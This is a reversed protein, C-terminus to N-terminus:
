VPPPQPIGERTSDPLSKQFGQRIPAVSERLPVPGELVQHSFPHIMTGIILTEYIMVGAIREDHEAVWGFCSHQRLCSLYDQETWPFEFSANELRLVEQLDEKKIRRIHVETIQKTPM